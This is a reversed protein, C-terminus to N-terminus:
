KFVPLPVYPRPLADFRQQMQIDQVQNQLLQLEFQSNRRATAVALENQLCIIREGNARIAEPTSNPNAPPCAAITPASIALFIFAAASSLKIM